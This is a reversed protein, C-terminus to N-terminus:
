KLLHEEKKKDPNLPVLKKLKLSDIYKYPDLGTPFPGEFNSHPKTPDIKLMKYDINKDPKISPMNYVINTDPAIKQMYFIKQGPLKYNKDKALGTSDKVFQDM